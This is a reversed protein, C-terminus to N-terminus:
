RRRRPRTKELSELDALDKLRGARRTGRDSSLAHTALDTGVLVRELRAHLDARGFVEERLREVSALREEVSLRALDDRDYRDIEALTTRRLLKEIPM